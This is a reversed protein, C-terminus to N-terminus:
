NLGYFSLRKRGANEHAPMGSKLSNILKMKNEQVNSIM